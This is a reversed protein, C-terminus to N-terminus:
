RSPYRNHQLNDIIKEWRTLQNDLYFFDNVVRKEDNDVLVMDLEYRLEDIKYVFTVGKNDRLPSYNLVTNDGIVIIPIGAFFCDVSASTSNSSIVVDYNNLIEGLQNTVEGAQLNPFKSIDISNKPHAKFDFCFRKSEESGIATSVFSLTNLTEKTQYDGLILVHVRDGLKKKRNYSFDNLYNFRLAECPLLVSEPFGANSLEQAMMPGNVAFMDPLYPNKSKGFLSATSNNEFYRVDWFRVTSHPVAISPVSRKKSKLTYLMAKEWPQNECLYIFGIQNITEATMRKFLEYYFLNSIAESGILSEYFNGKYYEWLNLHSYQFVFWNKPRVIICHYLLRFYKAIVIISVSISYFEQILRHRENDVNKTWKTTIKIGDQVTKFESTPNFLHIYNTLYGEKRLMDTLTTWYASYFTNLGSPDKRINFFFSVLTVMKKGSCDIQKVPKRYHIKRYRYAKALLGIVGRFATFFLRSKKKEITRTYVKEVKLTLNRKLCFERITKILINNASTINITTFKRTSIIEELAMLCIIEHFNDTKLYSKEVISSMQWFNFGDKFRFAEIKKGAMVEIGSIFDLYKARLRYANQEVYYLIANQYQGGKYSTWYFFNEEYRFDCEVFDFINLIETNNLIM